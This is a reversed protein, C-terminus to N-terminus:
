KPFGKIPEAPKDFFTARIPAGQAVEAFKYVSSFDAAFEGVEFPVKIGGIERYDRIDMRHPLQGLASKTASEVRVLLGSEVDFYLKEPDSGPVVGEVVYAPHGDVPETGHVTLQSYITKLNAAGFIGAKRKLLALGGGTTDRVGNNDQEWGAGGNLGTFSVWGVDFTVLFKDPASLYIKLPATWGDSSLLSGTLIATSFNGGPPKSTTAAAYREFIEDVTRAPATEAAPMGATAAAASKKETHKIAAFALPAVPKNSGRHCTNCTVEPQGGFNDRNIGRVMAIMRRATVKRPKDDKEMNEFSVHCDLCGAGLAGEMFFMNDVLETSPVGQFVQINKYVKEAPQNPQPEQAAAHQLGFCIALAFSISLYLKVRSILSFSKRINAAM